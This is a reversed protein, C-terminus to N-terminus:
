LLFLIATVIVSSFISLATIQLAKRYDRKIMEEDKIDGISVNSFSFEIIRSM